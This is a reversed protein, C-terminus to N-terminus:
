IRNTYSLKIWGKEGELQGWGNSVKIITHIKNGTTYSLKKFNTSPGSRINLVKVSSKVKVKYPFMTYDFYDGGVNSVYAYGKAANKWVIKYWGSKTQSLVLVKTGKPIFDYIKYKTSAGTRVNIRGRSVAQGVAKASLDNKAPASTAINSGNSLVIATHGPVEKTILIDGRKLENETTFTFKNFANSKMVVEEETKTVFNDVKIGAYHMCVRALASCDCEVKITLSNKDCKFGNDKVANFLTSRDSQDYGINSNKCAQEACVAIKEAKAPDKARLVTGWNQYM